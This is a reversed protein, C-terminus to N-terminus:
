QKVVVSKWEHDSNTVRVFYAGASLGSVDLRWISGSQNHKEIQTMLIQGLLDVVQISIEGPVSRDSQIFIENTSPNPYVIFSLPDVLENIGVLSVQLVPSTSQCGNADTIQVSYPGSLTATYQQSNAGSIPIGNYFWQYSNASTSTLINGSQTFTPQTPTSSVSIFSSVTFT